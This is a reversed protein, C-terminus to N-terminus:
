GSRRVQKADVVSCLLASGAGFKARLIANPVRALVQLPWSAHVRLMAVHM